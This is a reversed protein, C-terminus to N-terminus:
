QFDLLGTNKAIERFKELTIFGSGSYFNIMDMASEKDIPDNDPSANILDQATIRKKKDKDLMEFVEQLLEDTKVPPENEARKQMRKKKPPASSTEGDEAFVDVKDIVSEAKRRSATSKKTSADASESDDVIVNDAKKSRRPM